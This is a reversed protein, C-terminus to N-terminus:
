ALNTLQDVYEQDFIVCDDDLLHRPERLFMMQLGIRPMACDPNFWVDHPILGNMLIPPGFVHRHSEEFPEYPLHYDDNDKSGPVGSRQLYQIVSHNPDKPLYFRTGTNQMNFVPWNIKWQVPPCDLHIPVLNSAFPNQFNKFPNPHNEDTTKYAVAYYVNQLVIKLGSFFKMLKPNHKAFDRTDVFNVYPLPENPDHQMLATRTHLYIMIDHNIEDYNACELEQYPKHITPMNIHVM